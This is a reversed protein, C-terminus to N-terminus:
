SLSYALSIFSIILFFFTVNTLVVYLFYLVQGSNISIYFWQASLLELYNGLELVKINRIDLFECFRYKGKLERLVLYYYALPEDMIMIRRACYILFCTAKMFGFQM